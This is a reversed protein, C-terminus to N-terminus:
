SPNDSPSHPSIFEAQHLENLAELEIDSALERPSLQEKYDPGITKGILGKKARNWDRYVIDANSNKTVIVTVGDFTFMVPKPERIRRFMKKPAMVEAVIANCQAEVIADYIAKEISGPRASHAVKPKPKKKKKM